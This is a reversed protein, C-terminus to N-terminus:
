MIWDYIKTIRNCILLLQHLICISELLLNLPRASRMEIGLMNKITSITSLIAEIIKIRIIKTVKTLTTLKGLCNNLMTIIHPKAKALATFNIVVKMFNLRLMLRLIRINPLMPCIKHNKPWNHFRTIRLIITLAIITRINTLSPFRVIQPCCLTWWANYKYQQNPYEDISARSGIM